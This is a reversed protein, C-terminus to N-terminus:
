PLPSIVVDAPHASLIERCDTVTWNEGDGPYLELAALRGHEFFVVTRLDERERSVWNIRAEGMAREASAAGPLSGPVELHLYAGYGTFDRCTCRVLEIQACLDEYNRVARALTAELLSREVATLQQEQETEPWLSLAPTGGEVRKWQERM